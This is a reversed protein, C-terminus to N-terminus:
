STFFFCFDWGLGRVVLVTCFLSFVPLASMIDMWGTRSKDLASRRKSLLLSSSPFPTTRKINPSISATSAALSHKAPKILKLHLSEMGHTHSQCHRTQDPSKLQSDEQGTAERFIRSDTSLSVLRALRLSCCDPNRNPM